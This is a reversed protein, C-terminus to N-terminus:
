PTNVIRSLDPRYHLTDAYIFRVCNWFATRVLDQDQNSSSQVDFAELETHAGFSAWDPRSEILLYQPWDGGAVLQYWRRTVTSDSVRTSSHANLQKLANEFHVRSNPALYVHLVYSLPTPASFPAANSLDPRFRYYSEETSAEFPETNAEPGPTGSVLADSEDLEKWTHGFSIVQYAGENKGSDVNFVYYSWSEGQKKHWDWHRKLTAEFQLKTDPKLRVTEVYTIDRKQQCILPATFLFGVALLALVTRM